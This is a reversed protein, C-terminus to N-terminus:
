HPVIRVRSIERCDLAKALGHRLPEIRFLYDDGTRVHASGDALLRVDIQQHNQIELAAGNLFNHFDPGRRPGANRHIKHQRLRRIELVSIALVLRNHAFRNVPASDQM